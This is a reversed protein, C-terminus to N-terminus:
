ARGHQLMDSYLNDVISELKHVDVPSFVDIGRGIKYKPNVKLFPMSEFCRVLDSM